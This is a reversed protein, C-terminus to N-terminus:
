RAVQWCARTISSDMSNGRENMVFIYTGQPYILAGQSNIVGDPTFVTRREESEEPSLYKVHFRMTGLIKGRDEGAYRDRMQMTPYKAGAPLNSYAVDCAPTGALVPSFQSIQFLLALTLFNRM